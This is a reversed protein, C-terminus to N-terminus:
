EKSTIFVPQAAADGAPMCQMGLRQAERLTEENASVCLCEGCDAHLRKAAASLEGTAADFLNRLKLRRLLSEADSVASVAAAPLGEAQYAQLSALGEPLLLEDQHQELEEELLDGQRALLALKEAPQYVRHSRTLMIELAQAARAHAMRHLMKEDCQIGQERATQSWARIRCERTTLLTGELDFIVAKTM